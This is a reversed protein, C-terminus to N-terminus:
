IYNGAAATPDISEAQTTAIPRKSLTFHITTGVDLTSEVWIKGRHQEVIKKCMALGIGTGPIEELRHLRKFIQFIRESHAQDIGIGNDSVSFMWTNPKDQVTIDIIPLINKRRFKIANAILNQFLQIVLCGIVTIEPLPAFTIKAQGEKIMTKLNEIASSLLRECSITEHRDSISGIRSYELLANILNRMRSAGQVAFEIYNKSDEDLDDGRRRKLLTLFSTITRLPEQLDHSTLYAFEELEKNKESIVKFNNKIIKDTLYKETTDIVYLLLGSTGGEDSVFCGRIMQYMYEIGERQQSTTAKLPILYHHLAPSLVVSGKNKTTALIRKYGPRNLIAPFIEDLRKGYLDKRSQRSHDELWKNWLLIRGDEDLMLVGHELHDSIDIHKTFTM